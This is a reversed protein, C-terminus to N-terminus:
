REAMLLVRPGNREARDEVVDVKSFGLQRLLAVLDDLLLWKATAYMGSFPEARGGENFTKYAFRRGEVEYTKTADEPRAYHTDLMIGRRVHPAIAKLHSIPDHLHYLVGVHHLVDCSIDQGAPPPQEVDWVFVTPLIQFMGCRVITKVINSIRSDCAKVHHAYQALGATHVGEFCGIELVTLEKLDFRQNLMAIRRDPVSQPLNRKTASMPQGFRRGQSDVIFCAWPLMANLEALDEDSLTEVVPVFVRNDSFGHTPFVM